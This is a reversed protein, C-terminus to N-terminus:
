EMMNKLVQIGKQLQNDEEKTYLGKEELKDDLEVKIDPELGTKHINRNNPTYYKATTLKIASNDYLGMVTQVIGKGFTTTGVLKGLKYDQVAGSFVESASATNGNVLIVLPKNYYAETSSLYERGKGNKNKVSVLLKDKPVIRSLMDVASDLVGGGNNRLDIILGKVNKEEMEDIGRIFQNTTTEKFGSIQMYGINDELIECRVSPVEVNRRELNYTKYEKTKAIYFEVDVTTGEKGKIKEVVETLNEGKVSTHDVKTISDGSVIGAEHAAGGEYTEVVYAIGDKTNMAVSAGIGCYSGSNNTMLEEYEAKTYYKSYPDELSDLMGRYMGDVLKEQDVEEMFDKTIKEYIIGMKSLKEYSADGLAATQKGTVIGIGGLLLKGMLFIGLLVFICSLIGAIMGQYFSKKNEEEM